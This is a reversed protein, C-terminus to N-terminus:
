SPWSTQGAALKRGRGPRRGTTRIRGAGHLLPAAIGRGVLGAADDLGSQGRTIAADFRAVLMVDTSLHWIRDRDATRSAVQQQLTQNLEQLKGRQRAAAARDGAARRHRRQHRVLARPYGDADNCRCSAPSSPVSRATAGLLPFTMELGRRTRARPGLRRTMGARRGRAPTSGAGAKWEALTRGTYHVLPTSGTAGATRAHRGLVSEAPERGPDRFEEESRRLAQEARLREFSSWTREAVERM